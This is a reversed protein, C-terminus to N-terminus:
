YENSVLTCFDVFIKAGSDLFSFHANAFLFTGIVFLILGTNFRRSKQTVLKRNENYAGLFQRIFRKRMSLNKRWGDIDPDLSNSPPPDRYNIALLSWLFFCISAAFLLLGMTFSSSGGIKKDSFAILTPLAIALIGGLAVGTKTDIADAAHLIAEHKKIAMELMLDVNEKENEINAKTKKPRPM